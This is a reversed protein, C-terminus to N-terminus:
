EIRHNYDPFYKTNRLLLVDIDKDDPDHWNVGGIGCDTLIEKEKSLL